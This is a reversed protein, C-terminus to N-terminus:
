MVLSCSRLAHASSDTGNGGMMDEKEEVERLGETNESFGHCSSCYKSKEGASTCICLEGVFFPLLCVVM